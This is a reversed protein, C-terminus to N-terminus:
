ELVEGTEDEYEQRTIEGRYYMQKLETNTYESLNELEYRVAEASGTETQQGQLGSSAARGEASLEVTDTRPVSNQQGEGDAPASSQGAEAGESSRPSQHTYPFYNAAHITMSM